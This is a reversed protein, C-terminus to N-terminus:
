KMKREKVDYEMPLKRGLHDCLDQYYPPNPLVEMMLNRVAYIETKPVEVVAADYINIPVVTKLKAEKCRRWLHFQASQMVVAAVAQIPLNAIEPASKERNKKGGLFLRSQGILPLEFYGHKRIFEQMELHWEHMRKHRTWFADIAAQCKELPYALGVDQMLTQQFREAKGLNLMLFNMTKGAFRQKSDKWAKLGDRAIADDVFQEGFILRATKTHLDPKGQYEAFMVPDHSLLAAIRLEIQSYDWWILYGDKFRCTIGKKVDPPFTQAGPGKCVIRAQKTGGSTNDEYESPVPYWRPYIVGDIIKTSFDDHKKGRGTLIPYLYADLLKSYDQYKGMVILKKYAGFQRGSPSKRFTALLSNRNEVCFSIESKAETTELKPLPVGIQDLDNVADRMVNRKALESGKGRLPMDWTTRAFTQVKELKAWYKTFLGEIHVQDMAIGTETMWVLLWLLESYWKMCYPTLKSTTAGYFKRIEIELEEQLRLTAYTDQCNYQWAKPDQDNEYRKELEHKEYKTIRFLPALNKLSKEPRGEDHLYNTIITDMVRLPHDLWARCEPYCYRTCVLDFNLNQGVLFDFGPDNRVKKFWAWLRRRHDSRAMEFIAHKLDGHVDRWSLAATRIIRDRPVFDYKEMKLPHFQTQPPGDKFFGYTELDFALRKIPYEPPLPAVAIELDADLEIKLNGDLFDRLLRMHSHVAMGASPNRLLYSPHYTAFVRCPKPYTPGLINFITEKAKKSNKLVQTFDTTEGQCSLWKKLSGGTTSMVAPGGVALVIVEKYLKQLTRIDALLFGQCTKIQTKNPEKNQPPRCRVANSLYVDVKTPLDFFDIYAERLM